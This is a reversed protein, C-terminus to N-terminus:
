PTIFRKGQDMRTTHLIIGTLFTILRIKLLTHYVRACISRCTSDWPSNHSLSNETRKKKDKKNNSAACSRNFIYEKSNCFFLLAAATADLLPVLFVLITGNNCMIGFHGNSNTAQNSLGADAGRDCKPGWFCPFDWIVIVLKNLERKKTQPHSWCYMSRFGGKICCRLM